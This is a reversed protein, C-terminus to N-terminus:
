CWGVVVGRGKMAPESNATHNFPKLSPALHPCFNLCLTEFKSCSIGLNFFCPCSSCSASDIRVDLAAVALSVQRHTATNANRHTPSYTSEARPKGLTSLHCDMPEDWHINSSRGQWLVSTSFAYISSSRHILSGLNRLLPPWGVAAQTKCSDEGAGVSPSHTCERAHPQRHSFTDTRYATCTKSSTM